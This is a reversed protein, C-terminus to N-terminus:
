EALRRVDRGYIERRVIELELGGLIKTAWYISKSIKVPFLFLPMM